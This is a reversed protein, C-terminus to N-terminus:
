APQTEAPVEWEQKAPLLSKVIDELEHSSRVHEPYNHVGIEFALSHKARVSQLEEQLRVAVRKANLTDTEPLVIAFLKSSLNYISDTPRLKGSMAKAADGWAAESQKPNKESSGGSSQILLLTLSTHMTMARRHEMTLRDWFHDQGPMSQLIDASAQQRLQVNRELQEILNQKLKRVLRQRELLYGAFLITLVCFGVYAVRFAFKNGSDPRLFVLPYMLVALGAAQVLIFVAALVTLHLERRELQDLEKRNLPAV